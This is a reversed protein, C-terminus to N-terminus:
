GRERARECRRRACNRVNDRAKVESKVSMTRRKAKVESKGGSHARKSTKVEGNEKVRSQSLGFPTDGANTAGRRASVCVCGRVNAGVCACARVLVRASADHRRMTVKVDRLKIVPDRRKQAFPRRACNGSRESNTPHFPTLHPTKQCSVAVSDVPQLRTM